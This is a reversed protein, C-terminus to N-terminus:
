SSAGGTPLQSSVLSLYRLAPFGTDKRWAVLILGDQDHYPFEGQDARVDAGPGHTRLLYEGWSIWDFTSVGEPTKLGRFIDLCVPAELIDSESGAPNYRKRSDARLYLAAALAADHLAGLTDLGWKRLTGRKEAAFPATLLGAERLRPLFGRRRAILEPPETGGDLSQEIRDIEHAEADLAALHERESEHAPSMIADTTFLWPPDIPYHADTLAQLAAVFDRVFSLPAISKYAGVILVRLDGELEHHANRRWAERATEVDADADHEGVPRFEHVPGYWEAGSRIAELLDATQPAM